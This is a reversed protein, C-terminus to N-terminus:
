CMDVLAYYLKDPEEINLGYLSDSESFYICYYQCDNKPLIIEGQPFPTGYSFDQEIASDQMGSYLLTDGFLNGIQAGNSYFQPTGNKDCIFALSRRYGLKESVPYTATVTDPNAFSVLGNYTGVMYYQDYLLNQGNLNVTTWIILFFIGIRKM